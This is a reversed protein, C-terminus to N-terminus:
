RGVAASGPTGRLQGSPISRVDVISHEDDGTVIVTGRKDHVDRLTALMEDFYATDRKLRYAAHSSALEVVIDLAITEIAVITSVVPILLRAIGRTNPDIEVYAPAGLKRLAELIELWGGGRGGPYLRASRDGEFELTFGDPVSRLMEVGPRDVAPSIRQVLGVVANPNPM